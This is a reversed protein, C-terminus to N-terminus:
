KSIVEDAVQPKDEGTDVDDDVGTYYVRDYCIIFSLFCLCGCLFPLSVISFMSLIFMGVNIILFFCLGWKLM